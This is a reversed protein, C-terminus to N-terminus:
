NRRLNEFVDAVSDIPTKKKPYPAEVSEQAAKRKRNMGELRIRCVLHLCLVCLRHVTAYSVICQKSSLNPYTQCFQIGSGPFKSHM